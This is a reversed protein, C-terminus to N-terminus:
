MIELLKDFYEKVTELVKEHEAKMDAIIKEDVWGYTNAVKAIQNINRSDICMMKALEHIATFDVNICYGDIAMKRIYASMNKFGMQEMRDRIMDLEKDSLKIHIQRNCPLYEQNFMKREGEYFSFSM